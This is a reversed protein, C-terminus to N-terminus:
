VLEMQEDTIDLNHFVKQVDDDDELKEIVKIVQQFAENNLTVMTTPVRQLEANEVEIGAEDLKGQVSGFDEMSSTVTVRDEEVEISEAGAEIMKLELEELDLEATKKFSFVGKRDFLFEVSGNKGLSGGAKSFTARVTSVTRNINDTSCEVFVAVGHPAYGEYTVEEYNAADSGQGKGIAREITDKPMNQGKANQIALRLRPNNEPEPGGEKSAVTIEKILKTFIKGRKADQAGKRHKINAWKSHGAMIQRIKKLTGSSNQHVKLFAM